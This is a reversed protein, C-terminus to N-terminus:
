DAYDEPSFERDEREEREEMELANAELRETLRNASSVLYNTEVSMRGLVADDRVSEPWNALVMCQAAVFAIGAGKAASLLVGLIRDGTHRDYGPDKWERAVGSLAFTLLSWLVGVAILYWMITASEISMSTFSLGFYALEHGIFKGLFCALAVVGLRLASLAWGAQWGFAGFVLVCLVSIVDLIM